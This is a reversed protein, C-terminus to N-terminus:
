RDARIVVVDLVRPGHVGEIRELEIDSTASPGSIWTQATVPDLRAVAEPVLQVVQEEAVVVILHDPILSLIRRGQM